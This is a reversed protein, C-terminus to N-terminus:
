NKTANAEVNKKAFDAIASSVQKGTAKVGTVVNEGAVQTNINAQQIGAWETALESLTNELNFDEGIITKRVYVEPIGKEKAKAVLDEMTSNTKSVTFQQGLATVTQQLDRAWKPMEEPNDDKKDASPQDDKVEPKKNEQDWKKKADGVRTDGEKQVFDALEKITLTSNAEYDSIAGEIQSDETVKEALKKAIMTLVAKSVGQNKSILQALIKEWMIIDKLIRLHLLILFTYYSSLFLGVTIVTIIQFLLWYILLYM